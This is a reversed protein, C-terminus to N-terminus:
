EPGGNEVETHRITASLSPIPELTTMPLQRTVLHLVMRRDFEQKTLPSEPEQSDPETKLRKTESRAERFEESRKGKSSYKLWESRAREMGASASEEPTQASERGSNIDGPMLILFSM